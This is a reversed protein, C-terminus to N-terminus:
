QHLTFQLLLPKLARAQQPAARIGAKHLLHHIVATGTHTGVILRRGPRGIMHPDFPEYTRSDKLLAHCHIGSEHDFIGEGVIPQTPSITKASATAVLRCLPILDQLNISSTLGPHQNLAVAAQELASNGAREGLGNVTVSVAQAGAELATIANATAMGLDNHGHFELPLGPVTKLLGAIMGATTGPTGIGVTDALRLRGAGATGAQAAVRGLFASEARTADQAGVTVQDFHRCAAPVLESIQRLVWAEDKGLANLQIPSVPLSIHVASVNCRLAAALDDQHARCWVSLRAKLGLAQIRRITKQADAGMAPTGVELEDIGAQDLRRAIELKASETFTVGPAQEGDRLTTDIICVNRRTTPEM